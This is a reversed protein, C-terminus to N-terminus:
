IIAFIMKRIEVIEMHCGIALCAIAKPAQVANM